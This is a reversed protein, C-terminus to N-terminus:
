WDAVRVSLLLVTVPLEPESLSPISVKWDATVVAFFVIMAFLPVLSQEPEMVDAPWLKSLSPLQPRAATPSM